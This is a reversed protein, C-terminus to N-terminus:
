AELGRDAALLHRYRASTRALEDPAGELAFRGNELFAVRDMREIGQLHHTVMLVMRDALADLVADLVSRETAPDLGAFPEDLVVIPTDALLIRALALRHREGGSLLRGEEGVVSNLGRDFRAVRGWLGVRELVDRADDETADARAIRLNDLVTTNFVHPDQQIVGVVRTAAAFGPHPAGLLEISGSAPRLDGRVLDLLTSKGAGSRGLLAMRQGRALEFSLHDLVPVASGPYTFAVDRFALAPANAPAPAAGPADVSGQLSGEAEDAARDASLVVHNPVPASTGVARERGEDREPVPEGLADLHRVAEAHETMQSAAGPVPALAEVLPFFALVVGIAADGQAPLTRAAWLVLGCAAATLVLREVVSAARDQAALRRDERAVAGARERFRAMVDDVRGAFVVDASGLVDDALEAYLAAAGRKRRVRATGGLALSAVPLVVACVFLELLMWAAFLADVAGLALAALLTAAWAVVLPFVCRVYLNQVHAVDDNLLSLADGAALSGPAGPEPTRFVGTGKRVGSTGHGDADSLRLCALFLARRLSSTMRFVWDHSVLREVYSVVPKGIGIVQVLAIPMMLAFITEPMRAAAGIVWGSVFMLLCALVAALVGLGLALALARRYRGFYPMVWRDRRLVRALGRLTAPDDGMAARGASAARAETRAGAGSRRAEDMQAKDGSRPAEDAMGKSAMGKNAMGKDTM